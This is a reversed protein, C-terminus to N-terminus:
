AALIPLSVSAARTRGGATTASLLVTPFRSAKAGGGSIWVTSVGATTSINELEMTPASAITATVNTITDGDLAANWDIEYDLVEVGYKAPWALTM